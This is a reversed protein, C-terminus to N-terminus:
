DEGKKSGRECILIGSAILQMASSFHKFLRLLLDKCTMYLWFLFGKRGVRKGEEAKLVCSVEENLNIYRVRENEIMHLVQDFMSGELMIARM